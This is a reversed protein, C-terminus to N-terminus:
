LARFVKSGMSINSYKGFSHIFSQLLPDLSQVKIPDLKSFILGLDSGKIEM